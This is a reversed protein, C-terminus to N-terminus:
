AGVNYCVRSNSVTAGNNLFNDVRAIAEKLNNVQFQTNVGNVTRVFITVRANKASGKSLAVGRYSYHRPSTTRVLKNNTM